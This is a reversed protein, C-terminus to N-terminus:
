DRSFSAISAASLAFSSLIPAWIAALATNDTIDTTKPVFILSGPYILVDDKESILNGLKSSMTIVKTHGNPQVLFIAKHEATKRLGGSNNIYYSLNANPEYRVSGSNNTEGYVYVQNTNFPITIEDGDELITDFEPKSKIVDLDFEVIIRGVDKAEKLEKLIMSISTGSSDSINKIDIINRLLEKYTREKADKSVKMATENNLFGGFPYANNQYGGAQEILQSLPMNLPIIYTGPFKIAGNLKVTMLKFEDIILNDNHKIKIKYLEKASEFTNSVSKGKEISQIKIFDLNANSHLGNAYSILDSYSEGDKMEYLGPRKVGSIANVINLRPKVLIIDGSQLRNKFNAYGRIFISYLDISDIVNNKRIHDIQRYSGDESIGGAMSLAYFVNSNGSLSYIGPNFANGTVVVQIDRVKVLSIFAETGIFVEKVRSQILKVAQELSLGAISIKGIEKLQISGDRKIEYKDSNIRQEAIQIELVDGYDLVYSGDFNPENLPMFTSQITDFFTKGFVYLRDDEKSEDSLDEKDKKDVATSAKRYIPKELEKKAQMTDLVDSKMEDPLSELYDSDLENVQASISFSIILIFLTQIKKIL